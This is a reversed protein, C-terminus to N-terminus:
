DGDSSEMIRLTTETTGHIDQFSRYQIKGRVLCRVVEYKYWSTRDVYPKSLIIIIEPTSGAHSRKVVTGPPLPFTPRQTVEHSPVKFFSVEDISSKSYKPRLGTLGDSVEAMDAVIEKRRDEDMM